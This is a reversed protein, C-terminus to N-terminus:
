PFHKLHRHLLQVPEPSSSTRTGQISSYQGILLCSMTCLWQQSGQWYGHMDCMALVDLQGSSGQVDLAIGQVYLAVLGWGGNCMFGSCPVPVFSALMRSDYSHEGYLDIGRGNCSFVLMGFPTSAPAESSMSAAFARRKHAMLHSQLDEKAGECDRVQYTMHGTANTISCPQVLMKTLQAFCLCNQQHASNASLMGTMTVLLRLCLNNTILM